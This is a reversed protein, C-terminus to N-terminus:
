FGKPWTYKNQKIIIFIFFIIICQGNDVNVVKTVSMCVSWTPLFKIVLSILSKSVKPM